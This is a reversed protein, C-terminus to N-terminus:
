RCSHCSGAPHCSIMIKELWELWPEVLLMMMKKKREHELSCWCVVVSDSGPSGGSQGGPLSLSVEGLVLADKVVVVPDDDDADPPATSSAHGHLSLDVDADPLVLLSGSALGDDDDGDDPLGDPLLFRRCHYLFIVEHL